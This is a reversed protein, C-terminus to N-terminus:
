WSGFRTIRNPPEPTEYTTFVERRRPQSRGEVIKRPTPADAQKLGGSAETDEDPVPSPGSSPDVEASGVPGLVELVVSLEVASGSVLPLTSAERTTKRSGYTPAGM